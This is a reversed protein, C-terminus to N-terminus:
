QQSMMLNFWRSLSETCVMEELLRALYSQSIRANWRGVGVAYFEIVAILRGRNRKGGARLGMRRKTM